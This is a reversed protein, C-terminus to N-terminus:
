AAESLVEMESQLEVGSASITVTITEGSPQVIEQQGTSAAVAISGSGCSTEHFFTDIARVWVVPEIYVRGDGGVTIAEFRHTIEQRDRHVTIPASFRAGGDNSRALRVEGTNPKGLPKTWSVLVAGDQAFTIKPRNEGDGSIAEPRANIIVPPSWNAGQDSSRYLLLHDGQKAVALLQGDKTFAASSALEVRVKKGMGTMGAMTAKDKPDAASAPEPLSSLVIALAVAAGLTRLHTM